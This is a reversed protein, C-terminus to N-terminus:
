GRESLDSEEQYQCKMMMVWILFLEGKSLRCDLFILHPLWLQIISAANQLRLLFLFINLYVILISADMSVNVVCFPRFFPPRNGVELYNSTSVLVGNDLFGWFSFM